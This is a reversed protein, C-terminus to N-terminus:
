KLMIIRNVLTKGNDASLRGTYIGSPVSKGHADLGRWVLMGRKGHSGAQVAATHVLQGQMNFIRYVAKINPPLAYHISVVPNAPNPIATLELSQITQSVESVSTGGYKKICVADIFATNDDDTAGAFTITHEGASATFVSTSCKVFIVTSSPTFTGINTNDFSVNFTQNGFNRNATKFVLRYSGESFVAGQSIGGRRQLFAAQTGEPADAAEFASGNREIGAESTFTWGAGSPQYQYASIVPSEFGRNVLAIDSSDMPVTDIPIYPPGLYLFNLRMKQEPTPM